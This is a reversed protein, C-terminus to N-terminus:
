CYSSSSAISSSRSTQYGRFRILRFYAKSLKLSKKRSKRSSVALLTRSMRRSVTCQVMAQVEQKIFYPRLAQLFQLFQRALLVGIELQESSKGTSRINQLCLRPTVLQPSSLSVHLFGVEQLGQHILFFSFFSFSSAVACPIFLPHDRIFPIRELIPLRGKLTAFFNGM